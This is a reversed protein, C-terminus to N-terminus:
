DISNLCWDTMPRGGRPAIRYGGRSPSTPSMCVSTSLLVTTFRKRLFTTTSHRQMCYSKNKMSINAPIHFSCSDLSLSRKEPSQHREM